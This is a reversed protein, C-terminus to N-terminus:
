AAPKIGAIARLEATAANTDKTRVEVIARQHNLAETLRRLTARQEETEPIPVLAQYAKLDALCRRMEDTEARLNAASARTVRISAKVATRRRNFVHMLANFVLLSVPLGIVFPIPSHLALSTMAFKLAVVAYVTGTVINRSISVAM